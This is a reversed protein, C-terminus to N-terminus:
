FRSFVNIPLHLIQNKKPRDNEDDKEEEGILCKLM